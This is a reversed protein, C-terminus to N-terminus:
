RKFDNSGGSDSLNESNLMMENQASLINQYEKLFLSQTTLDIGPKFIIDKIKIEYINSTDVLSIGVLANDMYFLYLCNLGPMSNFFKEAELLYGSIEEKSKIGKLFNRIIIKKTILFGHKEEIRIEM